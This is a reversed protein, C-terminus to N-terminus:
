NLRKRDHDRASMVFGVGFRLGKIQNESFGRKRLDAEISEASEGAEVRDALEHQMREEMCYFDENSVAPLAQTTKTQM